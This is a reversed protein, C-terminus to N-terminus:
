KNKEEEEGEEEEAAFMENVADWMQNSVERISSHKDILDMVKDPTLDKDEHVLGAWIITAYGEMSLTGDRVGEIKMFPKGFKKEVLSIAKMGYRLNRIKDLEIPYYSM